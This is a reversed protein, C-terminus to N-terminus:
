GTPSGSITRGRADRPWPNATCGKLDLTQQLMVPAPRGKAPCTEHGLGLGHGVEHNILYHRYLTLDKVHPVGLNWRDLNLMVLSGARCSTYGDTNAGAAACVSDVTRPTALRITLDAGSDSAAVRKFRWQGGATWGRRHRLTSDILTSFKKPTVGAGQEVEVRHTVLEGGRGRTPSETRVGTYRGTTRYTPTPKSTPTPKATPAPLSTSTSSTTAEAVPPQTTGGSTEEDQSGHAAKIGLAIALVMVVAIIGVILQRRRAQAASSPALQHPSPM